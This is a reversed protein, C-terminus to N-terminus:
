VVWGGEVAKGEEQPACYGDQLLTAFISSCIYALKVTAKHLSVVRLAQQQLAGAMLSLMPALSALRARM